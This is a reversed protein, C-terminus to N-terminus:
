EITWNKAAIIAAATTGILAINAAGLTMTKATGGSNDKLKTPLENNLWDLSKTYGTAGTFNVSNINFNTPLIIYRCYGLTTDSTIAFSSVASLNMYSLSYCSPCFYYGSVTTLNPLSLSPLSYCANCFYDGSVTTLNPLSLSTLSYCSGCFYDGSVTTLNPVVLTTLSQCSYCFRESSVSTISEPLKIEKLASNYGMFYTASITNNYFSCASIDVYKISRCAATNSYGFLATSDSFITGSAGIFEFTARYNYLNVTIGTATAKNAAAAYMIIYRCNWEESTPYDANADFTHAVSTGVYLTSPEDSFVYADAGTASGTATKSFTASDFTDMACIYYIPKYTVGGQEIDPANAIIDEGNPVGTPRIYGGSEGSSVNVTVPNYGDYGEDTADYTGNATFTKSVINGAKVILLPNKVTSM